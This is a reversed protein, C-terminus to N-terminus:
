RLPLTEAGPPGHIIREDRSSCDRFYLYWPKEIVRAIYDCNGGGVDDLTPELKIPEAESYMVGKYSGQLGVGFVSREFVFTGPFKMVGKLGLKRLLTKYQDWRQSSFGRQSLLPFDPLTRDIFVAQAAEDALLMSRLHEYQLKDSWFDAMMRKDSEIGYRCGVLGISSAAM